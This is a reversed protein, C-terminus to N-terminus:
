RLHRGPTLFIKECPTKKKPKAGSKQPGKTNNLRSSLAAATALPQDQRQNSDAVTGAHVDDRDEVRSDARRSDRGHAPPDCPM